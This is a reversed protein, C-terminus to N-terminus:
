KPSLSRTCINHVLEWGVVYIAQGYENVISLVSHTESLAVVQVNVGEVRVKKLEVSSSNPNKYLSIEYTLLPLVVENESGNSEEEEDDEEEVEVHDYATLM